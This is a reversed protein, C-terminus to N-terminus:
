QEWYKGGAHRPFSPFCLRFHNPLATCHAQPRAEEVSNWKTHCLPSPDVCFWAFSKRGGEKTRWQPVTVTLVGTPPDKSCSEQVEILRRYREFSVACIVLLRRKTSVKDVTTLPKGFKDESWEKFYRKQSEGARNKYDGEFSLLLM